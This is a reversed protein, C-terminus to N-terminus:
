VTVDLGFMATGDVKSPVDTRPISRGIIRYDKRHKLRAGDTSLRSQTRSQTVTEVLQGYSLRRGTPQHIVSGKAARCAEPRVRWKHAAAQVFLERAKAAAERLPTWSEWISGSGGTILDHYVEPQTPAQEVHIASWEVELEDAIIMWISTFVGQGLESKEVLVTVQGKADIRLWANPSLVPPPAEIVSGAAAASRGPLYFGIVLGTAATSGTKLFARRSLMASMSQRRRRSPAAVYRGRSPNRTSHAPVHRM